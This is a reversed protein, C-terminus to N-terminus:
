DWSGCPRATSGPVTPVSTTSCSRCRVRCTTSTRPRPAVVEGPAAQAVAQAVLRRVEALSHVERLDLFSRGFAWWQLHLHADNLGPVVSGGAASVIRTTPGALAGVADPDGVAVIRNGSVAVAQAEAGDARATVVRTNTIILDATM